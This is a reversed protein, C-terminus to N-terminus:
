PLISLRSVCRWVCVCPTPTSRGNRLMERMSLMRTLWLPCIWPPTWRLSLKGYEKLIFQYIAEVSDYEAPVGSFAALAPIPGFGDAVESNLYARWIRSMQIVNKYYPYTDAEGNAVMREGLQIAKTVQNLWGVAYDNSLYITSYDNNDTGITFGSGRNFRSARDWYLIFIREAIEPNMQDGMISANLFWQPKVKDEGVLNPDENIEQFDNCSSLLAAVSVLGTFLINRTKM